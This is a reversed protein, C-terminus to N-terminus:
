RDGSRRRGSVREITEESCPRGAQQAAICFEAARDLENADTLANAIDDTLGSLTPKLEYVATFAELAERIKERAETEIKALRGEHDSRIKAVYSKADEIGKLESVINERRDDLIKLFRKWVFARLIALLILFSIVQAVLENANLLKLIEM